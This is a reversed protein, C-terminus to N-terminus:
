PAIYVISEKDNPKASSRGFWRVGLYSYAARFSWMNDKKCLRKLIQDAAKRDSKRNLKGERILQYLADHVLSARMFSKTDITPGSPGDWAYKEKIILNGDSALQIFDNAAEKKIDIEISFDALLQYKYKRLKRYTIRNTTM